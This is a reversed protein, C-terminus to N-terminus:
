YAIFYLAWLLVGSYLIFRCQGEMFKRDMTDALVTYHRIRIPQLFSGFNFVDNITKRKSEPDNM